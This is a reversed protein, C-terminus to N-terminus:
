ADVQALRRLGANGSRSMYVIDVICYETRASVLLRFFVSFFYKFTNFIDNKLVFVPLM